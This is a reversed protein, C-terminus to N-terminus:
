KSIIIDVTFGVSDSILYDLPVGATGEINYTMKWDSRDIIFHESKVSVENDLVISNAKFTISKTIDLITLNGTIESNYEGQITKFNTLEFKSTPYKNVSFFDDSKLHETLDKIADHPLNEVTLTNMHISVSLNSIKTDNVLISADKYYIKGSRPDAGGLHSASWHILSGTRLTTYPITNATTVSTVTKAESAGIKNDKCSNISFIIVFSVGLNISNKFM